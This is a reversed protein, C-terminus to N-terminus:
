ALVAPIYMTTGNCRVRIKHTADTWTPEGGVDSVMNGEANSGTDIDFLFASDEMAAKGTASTGGIVARFCSGASVDSDDGDAWLEGQVGAITGGLTRNPVLVNGRIATGLGTVNGASASFGLSSHIGNVTDAPTNSGVTLYARIAEGGAGASLTLRVDEGRITGGTAASSFNWRLAEKSTTTSLSYRAASTGIRMVYNDGEVSSLELVTVDDEANATRASSSNITVERNRGYKEDFPLPM